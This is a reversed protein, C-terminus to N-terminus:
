GNIVKELSLGYIVIGEKIIAPIPSQKRKARRIFEKQSIIFPAINGGFLQRFEGAISHVVDSAATTQQDKEVILCLDFDSTVTEDKRAVSGFLIVSICQKTLKRAIFSFAKKSFDKEVALLPLVGESILIHARNLTFLHDRGGRRREIIGIGELTALAKQCARHNMGALRSIERGTIGNSYQQLVRLVATHSWTSFLIDLINHFIM